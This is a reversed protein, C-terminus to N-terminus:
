SKEDHITIKAKEKLGTLWKNIATEQKYNLLIKRVQERGGPSVGVRSGVPAISDLRIAYQETGTDFKIAVEGPRLFSILQRLPIALDDFLVTTTQGTLKSADEGQKPIASLRTFTITAGHLQLYKDIEENTVQVVIEKNKRELLTTILSNEYYDKLAKRFSEEQDIRLRRAEQILLEKTIVASYIDSLENAHYGFKKQESVITSRNIDRGNISLAIEKEPIKTEPLSFYISIATAGTIIALIIFLYKM